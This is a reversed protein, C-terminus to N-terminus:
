IQCCFAFKEKDISLYINNLAQAQKQSACYHMLGAIDYWAFAVVTVVMRLYTLSLAFSHPTM